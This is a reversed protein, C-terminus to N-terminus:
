PQPHYYTKAQLVLAPQLEVTSFLRHLRVTAKFPM